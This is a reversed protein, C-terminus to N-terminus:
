SYRVLQSLLGEPAVCPEMARGSAFPVQAAGRCGVGRAAAKEQNTLM